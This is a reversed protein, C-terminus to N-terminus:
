PRRPNFYARLSCRFGAPPTAAKVPPTSQFIASIVSPSVSLTAAKVPPTSQFAQHVRNYGGYVLDGGERAAHISIGKLMQEKREELDGGERAAHISIIFRADIEPPLNTAAKM